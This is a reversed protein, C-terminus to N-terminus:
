PSPEKLLPEVRNSLDEFSQEDILTHVLRGKRDYIFTAPLAGSWSISVSNIFAEDNRTHKMYTEFDVGMKRLFRSVVDMDKGPEDISVFLLELGRESYERRLRLIDPFEAVCPGCWTAWFNVLVVHGRSHDITERLLHEDVQTIKPLNAQFLIAFLLVPIKM